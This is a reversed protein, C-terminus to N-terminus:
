EPRWVRTSYQISIEFPLFSIEIPRKLSFLMPILVAALWSAVSTGLEDMLVLRERQIGLVQSLPKFIALESNM